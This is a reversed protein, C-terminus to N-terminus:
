RKEVLASMQDRVARLAKGPKGNFWVLSLWPDVSVTLDGETVVGSSISRVLLREVAGADRFRGEFKYGVIRAM